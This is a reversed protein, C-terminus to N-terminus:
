TEEIVIADGMLEMSEIAADNSKADFTPADLKTPFANIVKWSIVADGKEDCLRVYVDRKEVQNIQISNIWSFFAKVSTGRVVGKKLTVVADKPQAPMRMVRPGASGSAVPSEKYVTTEYGISLGSVESFAIAEGGIEVRYNYVPLPYATKIDDASLAM